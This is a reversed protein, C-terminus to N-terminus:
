FVRTLIVVWMSLMVLSSIVFSYYRVKLTNSTLHIYSHVVRLLVYVWALAVFMYGVANLQLATLCAIFFLVPMEFQNIFNRDAVRVDSGAKELEMTLFDKMEITKQKAARFRRNGMIFMIIFTLLVQTFMAVILWKEM